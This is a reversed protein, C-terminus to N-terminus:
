SLFRIRCGDFAVDSALTQGCLLPADLDLREIGAAAAFHAAAATCEAGELMCSMVVGIGAPACYDAIERARRLGGCKFLKISVMDASGTEAIRRVSALDRASEDALVRLETGRTVEALARLDACPTPQELFDINLGLSVCLGAARLAQASTWGQNADLRLCADPPLAAKLERLTQLDAEIDTGLKIKLIPFGNAYADAARSAVDSPAGASITRDTTLEHPRGGLLACLPVGRSAALARHVAVDLAAKAGPNGYLAKECCESVDATLERGVLLPAFIHEAAYVASGPTDGTVAATDPAGCCGSIGEDTEVTIVAETLVDVRRAATVFPAPLPQSRVAATIAM